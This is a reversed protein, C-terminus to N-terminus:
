DTLGPRGRYHYRYSEVYGLRRYVAVAAANDAQVQLYGLSAGAARAQALLTACLRRSLALGRADPHVFVDYLGVMPGERATQACAVVSRDGPRRLLWGQYPVPSLLLREAHSRRQDTPSGRLAGVAEAFDAHPPSELVLGEPLGEAQSPLVPCHMVLTEDVRVFGRQDLEGDLGAPRTFPTIRFILPLGAERYTAEAQALREDLSLLGGFLAHISRARRAKGPSLRMLWGDLWRQQPPASANLCADEIRALLAPSATAKIFASTM